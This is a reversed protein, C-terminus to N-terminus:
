FTDYLIVSCFEPLIGIEVINKHDKTFYKKNDLIRTAKPLENFTTFVQHCTNKEGREVMIENDKM